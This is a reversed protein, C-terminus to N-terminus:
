EHTEVSGTVARAMLLGEEVAQDILGTPESGSDLRDTLLNGLIESVISVQDQLLLRHWATQTPDAMSALM